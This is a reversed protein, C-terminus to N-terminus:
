AEEKEESVNVSDTKTMLLGIEEKKASRGDVVGTIKGSNIVLIRDCLEILVDLDEGVFIVAVGNEKQKNLLNYITYSSNIDLGLVPYAAMLVAPAAAIERGVLV